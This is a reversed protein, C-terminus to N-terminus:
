SWAKITWEMGLGAVSDVTWSWGLVNRAAGLVIGASQAPKNFDFFRLGPQFHGKKNNYIPYLCSLFGENPTARRSALFAASEPNADSGARRMAALM